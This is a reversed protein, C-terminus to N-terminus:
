APIAGRLRTFYFGPQGEWVEVQSADRIVGQALWRSIIDRPSPPWDEHQGAQEIAYILGNRKAVVLLDTM